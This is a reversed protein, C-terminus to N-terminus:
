NNSRNIINIMISTFEDQLIDIKQYVNCESNISKVLGNRSPIIEMIATMVINFSLRILGNLMTYQVIENASWITGNDDEDIFSLEYMNTLYYCYIVLCEAIDHDNHLHINEIINIMINHVENICSWSKLSIINIIDFNPIDKFLHKINHIKTCNGRLIAWRVIKYKLTDCTIFAWMLFEMRRVYKISSSNGSLYNLMNSKCILQLIRYDQCTISVWKGDVDVFRYGNADLLIIENRFRTCTMYFPKVDTLLRIINGIYTSSLVTINHEM